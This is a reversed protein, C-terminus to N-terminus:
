RLEEVVKPADYILLELDRKVKTIYATHVKFGYKTEIYEKIM